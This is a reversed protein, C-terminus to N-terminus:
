DRPATEVTASESLIGGKLNQWGLKLLPTSHQTRLQM